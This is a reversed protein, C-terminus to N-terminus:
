VFLNNRDNGNGAIRLDGHFIALFAWSDFIAGRLGAAIRVFAKSIPYKMIHWVLTLELIKASYLVFIALLQNFCHM